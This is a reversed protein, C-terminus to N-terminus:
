GHWELLRHTPVGWDEWGHRETYDTTLNLIQEIFHYFKEAVMHASHPQLSVLWVFFQGITWEGLFIQIFGV